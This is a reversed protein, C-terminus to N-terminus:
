IVRKTINLVENSWRNFEPNDSVKNYVTYKSVDLTNDKKLVSIKMWNISEKKCEDEFDWLMNTKNNYPRLHRTYCKDSKNVAINLKQYRFIGYYIHFQNRDIDM